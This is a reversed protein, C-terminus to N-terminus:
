GVVPTYRLLWREGSAYGERFKDRWRGIEAPYKAEYRAILRDLLAPDQVREARSAFSPAARFAENRGTLQKWRGHSGAWIRAHDRGAAVSRAKWSEKSTILVVAGDLFAFWVEGHCTSEEGNSRLPSVYVFEGSELAALTAPPLGAPADPKAGAGEPQKPQADAARAARALPWLLAAAAIGLFHRRDLPRASESM